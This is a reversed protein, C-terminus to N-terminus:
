NLPHKYNPNQKDGVYGGHKYKAHNTSHNQRGKISKDKMNLAQDGEFLHDPNVCIVNDCSHLVHTKSNLWPNRYLKWSVRHARQMIVNSAEHTFAGYGGRLKFIGGLWLWCGSNPEPIFNDEFAELLSRTSYGSKYM